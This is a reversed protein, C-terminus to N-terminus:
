SRSRAVFTDQPLAHCSAQLSPHGVVCPTGPMRKRPSASAATSPPGARALAAAGARLDPATSAFARGHRGLGVLHEDLAVLPEAFRDVVHERVRGPGGSVLCADFFQDPLQDAPDVHVRRQRCRVGHREFVELAAARCGLAQRQRGQDRGFKQGREVGDLAGDVRHLRDGVAAHAGGRLVVHELEYALDDLLDVGDDFADIRGRAVGAGEAQGLQQQRQRVVRARGEHRALRVRLQQRGEHRIGDHAAVRILRLRGVGGAREVAGEAPARLRHGARHRDGRERGDRQGEAGGARGLRIQLDGEHGFRRRGAHLEVGREVQGGARGDARGFHLDLAARCELDILRQQRGSRGLDLAIRRGDRDFQALLLGVTLRQLDARDVQRAEARGQQLHLFDTGAQLQRQLVGAVRQRRAEVQEQAFALDLEDDFVLQELLHQGAVDRDVERDFCLDVVLAFQVQFVAGAQAHRHRHRHRHRLNRAPRQLQM